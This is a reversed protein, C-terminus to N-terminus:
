SSSIKKKAMNRIIPSINKSDAVKKIDGRRVLELFRMASKIPTKPNLVLALKVQYSKTLSRNNAIYEIMDQMAMPSQAFMTIEGPTIGANNLVAMTVQRRPEKILIKRVEMNGTMAIKIKHGVSMENLIEIIKARKSAADEQSLNKFPEDSMMFDPVDLSIADLDVGLEAEIAEIEAIGHDFAITDGEQPTEETEEAPQKEEAATAAQKAAEEAAKQAAEAATIAEQRKQLDKQEVYGLQERYTEAVPISFSKLFNSFREAEYYTIMVFTRNAALIRWLDENQLMLHATIHEISVKSTNMVSAVLSPHPKIATIRLLTPISETSIAPTIRRSLEITDIHQLADFAAAAVETDTDGSFAILADIWDNRVMPILHNIIAKKQFSSQATKWMSM